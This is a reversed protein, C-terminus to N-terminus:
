TNTYSIFLFILYVVFIFPPFTNAMTFGDVVLHTYSVPVHDIEFPNEDPTASTPTEGSKIGQQVKTTTASVLTDKQEAFSKIQSVITDTLPLKQLRPKIEFPNNKSQASIFSIIVLFIYGTFLFRRQYITFVKM